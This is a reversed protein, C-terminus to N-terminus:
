RMLIREFSSASFIHNQQLVPSLVDSEARSVAEFMGVWRGLISVALAPTKLPQGFTGM